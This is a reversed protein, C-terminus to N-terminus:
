DAVLIVDILQTHTPPFSSLIHRGEGVTKKKFLETDRTEQTEM